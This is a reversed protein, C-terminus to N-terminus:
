RKRAFVHYRDALGLAAALKAPLQLAGALAPRHLMGEVESREIWGREHMLYGLSRAFDKTIVDHAFEPEAFDLGTLMRRLVAPSYLIVHRPCDLSFWRAGFIHSTLCAPNPVAIHILAGPKMKGQLQRLVENPEYLHELVHSLRVFDLSGDEIEDWVSPSMLLARHGSGAVRKIVSESFDLGTTDWGRAAAWNLFVDSGCGFDLLRAGAAPPRYYQEIKAAVADPLLKDARYNLSNLIRVLSRGALKGVFGARKTSATSSEQSSASSASAAQYPGYHEPYFKPAEEELPRLSLFVLACDRCKSYKFEQQSLGYLRDRGTRWPKIRRSHCHPCAPLEETKVVFTRMM